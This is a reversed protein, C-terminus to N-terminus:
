PLNVQISAEFSTTQLVSNSLRPRSYNAYQQETRLHDEIQPNAVGDVTSLYDKEM